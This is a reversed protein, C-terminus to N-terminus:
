AKKNVLQRYTLAAGSPKGGFLISALYGILVCSIVGVAAYLYVIVDTQSRVLWTVIASGFLGIIAGISNARKIFIALIFIGALGGGFLGLVEQFYNFIYKVDALAILVAFSTGLFGVLITIWKALRLNERDTTNKKFRSHIDTVYASAVSNMSSDLSSMSAAFLAAIVTGAIGVPLNQVIYFPLLEDPKNSNIVSPNKLYYVFLTTGLGFFIVIGPLMLLGNTWLSKGAAAEDKVTLYRQVVTQDSTYPIIDLFFFGVIVVWLVLRSPDWGLHIMRFKDLEFGKRVIEVIGGDVNLAAIAICFIAGGLLIIVQTVDTWIVAEIGGMVTYITCFVGMIAICLFIDIGTVSAIAIAPLYLVIGIRGLQMLMFTVSALTRVKVNFRKELYEYATTVNLRRFFPLYYKILLPVIAPIMLSGIALTWDSAYVIAPVAMFTIASLQTGYISLGAAWWPIRRGAVFYDETTKGRKSYYYGIYLMVGLYALLFIWNWKGFAVANSLTFIAPSQVGPGAEGSPLIWKGNWSTSPLTVRAAGRPLAGISVYSESLTNFALIDELFGPHSAPDTHKATEGDLGGPFVIHNQGMVPAPSPGAAVARPLEPLATWKGKEPDFAFADTLLERDPDDQENTFTYIGSFLYFQDDKAAAVAHIRPKGPWAPLTKWQMQSVPVSLDLAFFHHTPGGGPNELGGAIYVTTGVLAGTMMALPVPLDPYQDSLSVAGNAYSLGIVQQFHRDANGGGILLIQDQYSVAVGYGLPDPLTQSLKQWKGNEDELAYIDQYWTKRGGEWPKEDPFNAGGMCLLAGNSVGAFMGAFGETDPIPPLQAIKLNNSQGPLTFVWCALVLPLLVRLKM